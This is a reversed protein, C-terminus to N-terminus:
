LPLPARLLIDQLPRDQDIIAQLTWIKGPFNGSEIQEDWKGVQQSINLYVNSRDSLFSISLYWCLLQKVDVATEHLDSSCLTDM